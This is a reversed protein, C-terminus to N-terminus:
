MAAVSNLGDVGLEPSTLQLAMQNLTTSAPSAANVCLVSRGEAVAQEWHPDFPVRGGLNTELGLFQRCSDVIRQGADLARQSDQFRNCIISVGPKVGRNVLTKILAYSDTVAVQDVTTM